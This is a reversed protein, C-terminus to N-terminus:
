YSKFCTPIDLQFSIIDERVLLHFIHPLHNVIIFCNRLIQISKKLLFFLVMYQFSSFFSNCIYLPLLSCLFHEFLVLVSIRIICCPLFYVLCCFFGFSDFGVCILFLFCGWLQSAQGSIEPWFLGGLSLLNSSPLCSFRSSFFVLVSTAWGDFGLGGLWQLPDRDQDVM